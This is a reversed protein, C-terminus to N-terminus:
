NGEIQDRWTHVTVGKEIFHAADEPEVEIVVPRRCHCCITAGTYVGDEYILDILTPDSIASSGCDDCEIVCFPTSM